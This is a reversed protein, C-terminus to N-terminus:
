ERPQRLFLTASALQAETGMLPLPAQQPGLVLGGLHQSTPVIVFVYLSWSLVHMKHLLAPKASHVQWTVSPKMKEHPLLYLTEGLIMRSKM